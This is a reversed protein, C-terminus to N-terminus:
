IKNLVYRQSILNLVPNDYANFKKTKESIEKDYIDIFNITKTLKEDEKKVDERNTTEDSDSQVEMSDTKSNEKVNKLTIHSQLQQILQLQLVQQHQLSFLTSQLVALEKLANDNTPDCMSAAFQAVAVKTNELAELTVHSTTFPNKTAEISMADTCLDADGANPTSVSTENDEDENEGEDESKDNNEVDNDSEMEKTQDIENEEVEDGGEKKDNVSEDRIHNSNSEMIKDEEEKNNHNNNDTDCNETNPSHPM